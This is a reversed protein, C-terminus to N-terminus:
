NNQKLLIFPFLILLIISGILIGAGVGYVDAFVGVLLMIIASFISTLQSQVSLIGAHINANSKSTINAVCSPKRGNEIALIIIFLLVVWTSNFTEMIVGGLLGIILGTFLTINLFTEQSSFKKELKFAGRSIFSNIIFILFYISGLFLATKEQKSFYYLPVSLIVSKLYPQIFDKITKYYGSYVSSNILAKLLEKNKFANIFGVIIIKLRESVSVSFVREEGNTKDLFSPYSLVNLLDLFYPFVSFLFIADLNKNFFFLVGGALSSIASGIQSWSRTHGYYEVKNEIQNTSRLYDIIMAKNIGSRIADGLAYLLMALLFIKFESYAYFLIFAIIYALFATALTKKRGLADAIIGSPIEFVNIAIERVSYLIGIQLFTIDKSLFYLIFFPEFFRLNKLFGYLCFKYYQKDKIIM